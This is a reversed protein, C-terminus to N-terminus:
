PTREKEIECREEKSEEKGLKKTEEDKEIIEGWTWVHHKGQVGM